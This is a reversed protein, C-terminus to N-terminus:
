AQPHSTLVADLLADAVPMYNLYEGDHMPLPLVRLIEAAHFASDDDRCAVAFNHLEAMFYINGHSHEQMTNFFKMVRPIVPTKLVISTWYDVLSFAFEAAFGEMHQYREFVTKVDNSINAHRRKDLEGGEIQQILSIASAIHASPDNSPEDDTKEARTRETRSASRRNLIDMKSMPQVEEEGMDFDSDGRDLHHVEKPAMLPKGIKGVLLRDIVEQNKTAEPSRAKGTASVPAKRAAAPSETSSPTKKAHKEANTEAKKLYASTKTFGTRWKVNEEALSARQMKIVDLHSLDSTYPIPLITRTELETVITLGGTDSNPQVWPNLLTTEYENSLALGGNVVKNYYDEGVSYLKERTVGQLNGTLDMNGSAVNGVNGNTVQDYHAMFPYLMAQSNLIAGMLECDSVGALNGKHRSVLQYVVWDLMAVSVHVVQMHQGSIDVGYGWQPYQLTTFNTIEKHDSLWRQTFNPQSTQAAQPPAAFNNQPAQPSAAFNNQPAQPSAAFNNQPAQPPAAFNNQPAQPSAAFNNQPAQPPAAFNNQQQQQSPAGFHPYQPQQNVPPPVYVPPEYTGPVSTMSQPDMTEDSDVPATSGAKSTFMSFPTANPNLASPKSNTNTQLISGGGGNPSVPGDNPITFTVAPVSDGKPAARSSSRGTSMNSQERSAALEARDKRVKELYADM